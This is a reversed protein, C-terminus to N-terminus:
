VGRTDQKEVEEGQDKTGQAVAMLQGGSLSLNNACGGSRTGAGFARQNGGGWRREEGCVRRGRLESQIFKM